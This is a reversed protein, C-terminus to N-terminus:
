AITLYLFIKAHILFEWRSLLEHAKRRGYRRFTLIGSKMVRSSVVLGTIRVCFRNILKLLRLILLFRAM